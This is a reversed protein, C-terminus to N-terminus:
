LSSTTEYIKKHHMEISFMMESEKWSNATKNFKLFSEGDDNTEFWFSVDGILIPSHKTFRFGHMSAYLLMVEYTGKIIKEYNEKSIKPKVAHKPKDQRKIPEFM